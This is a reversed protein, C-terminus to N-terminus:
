SGNYLWWQERLLYIKINMRAVAKELIGVLIMADMEPAKMKARKTMAIVRHTM